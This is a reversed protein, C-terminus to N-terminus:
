RLLEGPEPVVEDLGDGSFFIHAALARGSRNIHQVEGDAGADARALGESHAPM